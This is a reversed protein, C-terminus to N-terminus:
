LREILPIQIEVLYNDPNEENWPGRHVIQRDNLGMKYQSNKQLWKSFAIYVGAINSFDGYVMSCAMIPIMETYRYRFDGMDMGMKKVPVCLEVDVDMEKYEPDHYIAFAKDSVSIQQQAAFGSLEQWLEGEAYYNSIIRRLSLVGYKPISKISIQYYMESREGLIERRAMEIKKLKEEEIQINRKIEDYKKNLQETIFDNSKSNESVESSKNSKNSKNSESNLIQEIEAIQFGSDRLYIIKNLRPIQEVSYMRYGTWSDIRAPKLIGMEDYYRLMRVTVQTLKSFEGIKFM